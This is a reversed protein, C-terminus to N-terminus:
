CFLIGVRDSSLNTNKTVMPVGLSEALALAAVSEIGLDDGAALVADMAIARVPFWEAVAQVALGFDARARLPAGEHRLALYEALLLSTSDLALIEEVQHIRGEVLGGLVLLGGADVVASDPM